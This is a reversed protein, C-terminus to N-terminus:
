RAVEYRGVVDLLAVEFPLLIDEAFRWGSQFQLTNWKRSGQRSSLSRDVEKIEVSARQHAPGPAYGVLGM